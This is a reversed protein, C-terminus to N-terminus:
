DTFTDVNFVATAPTFAPTTLGGDAPISTPAGTGFQVGFGIVQDAGQVRRMDIAIDRWQSNLLLTWGSQFYNFSTTTLVYLVAGGSFSGSALRVKVHLTRGSMDVLHNPDSARLGVDVIQNFDSFPATIQLSGPAPNGDTADFALTAQMVPQLVVPALGADDGGAGGAGGAGGDGGAGGSGGVGGDNAAVFPPAALNRVAGPLTSQFTDLSFGQLDTDFTYSIPASTAGTDAAADTTGGSGGHGGAGGTGGDPVVLSNSGCGAAAWVLGAGLL